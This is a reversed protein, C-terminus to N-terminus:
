GQFAQTIIDHLEGKGQQTPRQETVGTLYPLGGSSLFCGVSYVCITMQFLPIQGSM